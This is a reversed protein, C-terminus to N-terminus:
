SRFRTFRGKLSARWLYPAVFRTAPAVNPTANIHCIRPLQRPLLVHKSPLLNRSPRAQPIERFEPLLGWCPGGKGHRDSAEPGSRPTRTRTRPPDGGGGGVDLAEFESFRLSKQMPVDARWVSTGIGGPRLHMAWAAVSDTRGRSSSPPPLGWSPSM